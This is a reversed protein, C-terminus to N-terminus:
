GGCGIQGVHWEFSRFVSATDPRAVSAVKETLWWGHIGPGSSGYMTAIMSITSCGETRSVVLRTSQAGATWFDRNHDTLKPLIRYPPATEEVDPM